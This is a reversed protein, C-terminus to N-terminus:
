SRLTLSRLCTQAFFRRPSAIASLYSEQTSWGAARAGRYARNMLTVIPPVDADTALLFM